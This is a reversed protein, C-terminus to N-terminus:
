SNLINDLYKNTYKDDTLTKLFRIVAMNLKNSGDDWGYGITDYLEDDLIIDALEKIREDYMSEDTLEYGAGYTGYDYSDGKDYTYYTELEYDSPERKFVWKKIEKKIMKYGKKQKVM